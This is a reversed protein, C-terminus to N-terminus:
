GEGSTLQSSRTLLEPENPLLYSPRM